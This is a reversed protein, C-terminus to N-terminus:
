KKTHQHVPGVPPTRSFKFTPLKWPEANTDGERVRYFRDMALGEFSQTKGTVPWFIEIRKISKAQGLGIEQRLPNNGFSSGTTVVRYINREGSETAAVVKIRAGLAIRNSKVGELKVTIWHNSHGPNEFL